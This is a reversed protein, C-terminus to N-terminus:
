GESRQRLYWDVIEEGTAKWVGAYSCIHAMTEELYKSRFPQGSLWPHLNFVFTRGSHAGEKYLADFCERVMQSYLTISLRPGWHSLIDDAELTIPLSVVEGHPVKMRYPQDDNPWDCVYRIGEMALLNPTRTSEGYDPGLWGVPKRGTAQELAELSERIYRREEEEAMNSTIMQTVTVGHGILEWGRRKCEEIIFPYNQAVTADMAVTARIGYRDLMEMLRFIGVRNGYERRSFTTVDPSGRREIAALPPAQYSGPPPSWEYHELSVIVCLAVRSNDPWQLAPRASIPSWDYYDHDTGPRRQAPM